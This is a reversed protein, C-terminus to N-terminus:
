EPFRLEFLSYSEDLFLVQIINLILYSALFLVTGVVAWMLTSRAKQVKEPNGASTLYQFSGIVFMIFLILVILGSALILINGFVVELCQFTPVGDVICGSEELTTIGPAQAYAAPIIM